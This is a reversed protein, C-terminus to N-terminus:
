GVCKESAKIQEFAAEMVFDNIICKGLVHLAEDIDYQEIVEMITQCDETLQARDFGDVEILLHAAHDNKVQVTAEGLHNSTWLLADREM